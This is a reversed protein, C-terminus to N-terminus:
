KQMARLQRKMAELEKRMAGMEAEMREMTQQQQQVTALLMSAYGYLDVMVGSNEVALSDAPRDEIIFGLKQDTPLTPHDYTYLALKFSLLTQAIQARQAETLYRIDKKVSRTSVPCGGGDSSTWIGGSCTRAGGSGCQYTCKLEEEDCVDGLRPMAEPCGPATNPFDCDWTTDIGCVPAGRPCTTCYCALDGYSCVAGDTDCAQGRADDISAPCTATPPDECGPDNISWVPNPDVGSGPDCSTRIRCARRPDDGYECVLGLQPCVSSTTPAEDPCPSTGTSTDGSGTDQATSDGSPTTDQNGTTDQTQTDEQTQAPDDDECAAILASAIFLLLLKKM